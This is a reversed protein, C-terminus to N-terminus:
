AAVKHDLMAALALVTNWNRATVPSGAARDFLAPTLKSHGVSEGFDVWLADGKIAIREKGSARATLVEIIDHAPPAVSLCLHLLKPREAEADPFASGAAYRAWDDATRVIVPVDLGFHQEIRTKLHAEIDPAPRDSSLLINGSQIYTSVDAFGEAACLERLEAMPLKRTSGVNIGRLLAVYRTM